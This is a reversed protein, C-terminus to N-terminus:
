PQLTRIFLFSVFFLLLVVPLKVGCYNDNDDGVARIKM